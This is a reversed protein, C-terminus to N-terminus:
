RETGEGGVRAARAARAQEIVESPISDGPCLPGPLSRIFDALPGRITDPAPAQNNTEDM